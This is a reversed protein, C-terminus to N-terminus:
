IRSKLWTQVGTIPAHCLARVWRGLAKIETKGLDWIEFFKKSDAVLHITACLVRCELPTCCYVTLMTGSHNDTHQPSCSLSIELSFPTHTINVFYRSTNVEFLLSIQIQQSCQIFLTQFLEKGDKLVKYYLLCELKGTNRPSISITRINNWLCKTPCIDVIAVVSPLLEIHVPYAGKNTGDKSCPDEPSQEQCRWRLGLGLFCSSYWKTMTEHIGSRSFGVNTALFLPVLLILEEHIRNGWSGLM